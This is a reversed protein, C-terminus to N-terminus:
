NLKDSQGPPFELHATSRVFSWLALAGAASTTLPPLNSRSDRYQRFRLHAYCVPIQNSCWRIQGVKAPTSGNLTTRGKLPAVQTSVVAQHEWREDLRRNGGRQKWQLPNRVKFCKNISSCLRSHQPWHGACKSICICPPYICLNIGLHLRCTKKKIGCQHIPKM